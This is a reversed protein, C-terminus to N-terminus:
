LTVLHTQSLIVWFTAWGMKQWLNSLLKYRSFFHRLVKRKKLLKWFATSLLCGGLLSFNAWAQWGAPCHWSFTNWLLGVSAPKKHLSNGFQVDSAIFALNNRKQLVTKKIMWVTKRKYNRILLNSVKWKFVAESALWFNKLLSIRVRHRTSSNAIETRLLHSHLNEWSPHYRHVNTWLM